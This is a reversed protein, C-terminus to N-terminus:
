KQAPLSAGGPTQDPTNLLRDLLPGLESSQVRGLDFSERPYDLLWYETAIDSDRGIEYEQTEGQYRFHIRYLDTPSSHHAHVTHVTQLITFLSHISDPDHVLQHKPGQSLDVERLRLSDVGLLVQRKGQDRKMTMRGALSMSVFAIGIFLWVVWQHVNLKKHTAALVAFGVACIVFVLVFPEASM